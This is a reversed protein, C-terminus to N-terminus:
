AQGLAQLLQQRNLAKFSIIQRVNLTKLAFRHQAFYDTENTILITKLHRLDSWSMIEYLLELGSNRPLLPNLILWDARHQDILSLTQQATDALHVQFHSELFRGLQRRVLASDEAIVVTKM